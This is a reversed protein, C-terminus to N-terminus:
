SPKREAADLRKELDALLEDRHSDLLVKCLTTLATVTRIGLRGSIASPVLIEKMFRRIGAPSELDLWEPLPLRKQANTNSPQGGRMREHVVRKESRPKVM